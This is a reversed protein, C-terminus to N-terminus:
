GCFSYVTRRASFIPNIRQCSIGIQCPISKVSSVVRRFACFINDSIILRSRLRQATPKQPTALSVCGELSLFAKRDENSSVPLSNSVVRKYTAAKSKTRKLASFCRKTISSENVERSSTTATLLYIPHYWGQGTSGFSAMQFTTGSM